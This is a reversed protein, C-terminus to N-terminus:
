VLTKMCGALSLTEEIDNLCAPLSDALCFPLTLLYPDSDHSYTATTFVPQKRLAALVAQLTNQHVRPSM